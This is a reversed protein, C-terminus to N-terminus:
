SNKSIRELDTILSSTVRQITAQADAPLNQGRGISSQDIARRPNTGGTALGESDVHRHRSAHHHSLTDNHWTAGIFGVVRRLVFEPKVVLTEYSIPFIPYGQDHYRVLAENKIRWYM